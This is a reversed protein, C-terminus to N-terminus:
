CGQVQATPAVVEGPCDFYEVGVVEAAEELRRTRAVDNTSM